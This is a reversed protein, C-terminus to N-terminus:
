KDDNLIENYVNITQEAIGQINEDAIKANDEIEQKEQEVQEVPVTEIEKSEAVVKEVQEVAEKNNELTGLLKSVALKTNAPISKSDLALLGVIEVVVNMVDQTNLNDKTLSDIKKTAIDVQETTIQYKDLLENLNNSYKTTVDTVKTKIKTSLYSVLVLVFSQLLTLISNMWDSGFTNNLLEMFDM